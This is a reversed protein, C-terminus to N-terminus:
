VEFFRLYIVMFSVFSMLIIFNECESHTNRKM